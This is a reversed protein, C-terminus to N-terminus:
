RSVMIRIAIVAIAVAGVGIVGSSWTEREDRVTLIAVPLVLAGAALYGGLTEPSGPHRGHAWSSGAGLVLILSLVELVWGMQDLWRPRPAKLVVGVIAALAVIAAYGVVIWAVVWLM